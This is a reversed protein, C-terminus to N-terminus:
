AVFRYLMNSYQISYAITVCYYTNYLIINHSWRGIPPCDNVSVDNHPAHSYLSSKYVVIGNSKIPHADTEKARSRTRLFRLTCCCFLHLYNSKTTQKNLSATQAVAKEM